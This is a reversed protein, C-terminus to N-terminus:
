SRNEGELFGTFDFCTSKELVVSIKMVLCIQLNVLIKNRTKVDPIGFFNVNENLGATFLSALAVDKSRKSWASLQSRM